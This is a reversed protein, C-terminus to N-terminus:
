LEHVVDLSYRVVKDGIKGEVFKNEEDISIIEDLWKKTIYPFCINKYRDTGCIVGVLFKDKGNEDVVFVPYYSEEYIEKAWIIIRSNCYPTLTFEGDSNKLIFLNDYINQVGTVNKIPNRFHVTYTDNNDEKTVLYSGGNEDSISYVDGDFDKIIDGGSISDIVDIKDGRKCAFADYGYGCESCVNHIVNIKDYEGKKVWKNNWENWYIIVKDDNFIIV